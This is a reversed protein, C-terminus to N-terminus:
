NRPCSLFRPQSYFPFDQNLYFLCVAILILFTYKNYRHWIIRWLSHSFWFTDNFFFLFFHLSFCLLCELTFVFLFCLERNICFIIQLLSLFSLFYVFILRWFINQFYLTLSRLFFRIRPIDRSFNNCCIM